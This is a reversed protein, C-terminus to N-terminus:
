PWLQYMPAILRVFCYVAVGFPLLMTLTSVVVLLVTRRPARLLVLGLAFAPVALLPIVLSHEVCWRVFAPIESPPYPPDATLPALVTLVLGGLLGCAISGGIAYIGSGVALWRRASSGEPPSM